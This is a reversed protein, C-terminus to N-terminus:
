AGFVDILVGSWAVLGDIYLPLAREVADSEYDDNEGYETITPDIPSQPPRPMHTRFNEVTVHMDELFLPCFSLEVSNPHLRLSDFVGKWEDSDVSPMLYVDELYLTSLQMSSSIWTILFISAIDCPGIILSRLNSTASVPGSPHPWQMIDLASCHITEITAGCRSILYLADYVINEHTSKLPSSETEFNFAANFEISRLTDLNLSEHRLNDCWLDGGIAANRMYLARIEVRSTRLTELALGFALDVVSRDEYKSAVSNYNHMNICAPYNPRLEDNLNTYDVQAFAFDQCKPLIRFLKAIKLVFALRRHILLVRNRDATENYAKFAKRRLSTSRSAPESTFKTNETMNLFTQSDLVWTHLPPVFTMSHIYPAFAAFDIKPLEDLWTVDIVLNVNYFLRKLVSYNAAFVRCVHRLEKLQPARSLTM